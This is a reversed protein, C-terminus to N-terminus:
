SAVEQRMELIFGRAILDEAERVVEENEASWDAAELEPATLQGQMALVFPGVREWIDSWETPRTFHVSPEPEEGEGEWAELTWGNSLAYKHPGAGLTEPEYVKLGPVRGERCAEALPAVVADANAMWWTELEMEASLSEGELRGALHHSRRLATVGSWWTAPKREGTSDNVLWLRIISHGDNRKPLEVRWASPEANPASDALRALTAAREEALKAPTACTRCLWRSFFFAGARPDKDAHWSKGGKPRHWRQFDLRARTPTEVIANEGCIDCASATGSVELKDRWEMAPDRPGRAADLLASADLSKTWEPAPLRTKRQNESRRLKDDLAAQVAPADGDQEDAEAKCKPCYFANGV